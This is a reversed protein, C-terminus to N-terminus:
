QARPTAREILAQCDIGRPLTGFNRHVNGGLRSACFADAVFGPAHQILLAAQIGMAMRDVLERSRYELEDSQRLDQHLADLWRDLLPNQGKALQAETFFADLVAPTKQVARLVDLCQVNGSGEWISNLPSERFLLPM